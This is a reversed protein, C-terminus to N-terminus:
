GLFRMEILTLDDELRISNSYKLLEEEIAAEQVDSEPYGQKKLIAILGDVGLPKDMADYVEIAGDSFFWLCDNAQLELTIDDYSADEVLGFPAGVCEVQEFEGTAHVLLAPPNGAGILRVEHRSVNVLGCIGTAFVEDDRVLRNLENGIREVFSSPTALLPHYRDWLSSIYMTSLAAALGHGTVDALLFGYHDQDLRGSEATTAVWLITHSTTRPFISAPM